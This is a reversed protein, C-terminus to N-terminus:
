EWGPHVGKAAAGRTPLIDPGVLNHEGVAAGGGGGLERSRWATCLDCLCGRTGAGEVPGSGQPLVLRHGGQQSGPGPWPSDVQIPTGGEVPDHVAPLAPPVLPRSQLCGPSCCQGAM